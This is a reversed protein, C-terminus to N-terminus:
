LLFKRKFYWEFLLPKTENEKPKFGLELLSEYVLHEDIVGSPIINMLLETLQATSYAFEKSIFDAPEYTDSIIRKVEEKYDLFFVEMKKVPTQKATQGIM